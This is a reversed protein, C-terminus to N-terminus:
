NDKGGDEGSEKEQAAKGAPKEEADPENEEKTAADADPKEESNQNAPADGSEAALVERAMELRKERKPATADAPWSIKVKRKGEPTDLAVTATYPPIEPVRLPQGIGKIRVVLWVAFAVLASTAAVVQSVRLGMSTMLSDTRLGEIFFRGIGYWMIYFLFLEGNFKRRKRYAFILVFGLVCWLSEYLFTPHVPLYPDVTVGETALKDQVSYLYATTTPSIMGWPLTTNTGFAEQNFFNGWRGCAQGILFGMGALDFLPLMPVKRLKCTVGAGLFAGIIAGYIGIGGSRLDLLNALNSFYFVRNESFLVYYLRGGVIACILGVIIVDIMRDSDIGFSKALRFAMLLALAMGLGICIGYWYIDLGFLSFAVRNIDLSIGLGPFRVEITM